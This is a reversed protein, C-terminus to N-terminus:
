RDVDLLLNERENCYEDDAHPTPSPLSNLRGYNWAQGFNGGCSTLTIADGTQPISPDETTMCNDTGPISFEFDGKNDYRWRQNENNADCEFLEVVQNNNRNTVGACLDNGARLRLLRDDNLEWLMRNDTEDCSRLVLNEGNIANFVGLCFNFQMADGRFQLLVYNSPSCSFNITYAADDLDSGDATVVVLYDRENNNDVVAKMTRRRDICATTDIYQCHWSGNPEEAFVRMYTESEKGYDECTSEFDVVLSEDEGSVRVRYVQSRGWRMDRVPDEPCGSMETYIYYDVVGAGDLLATSHIFATSTCQKVQHIETIECATRLEFRTSPTSNAVESDDKINAINSSDGKERQNDQVDVGGVDPGPVDPGPPAPKPKLGLVLGVVTSVFIIVAAFLLLRKRSHCKECEGRERAGTKPESSVAQKSSYPHTPAKAMDSDVIVVVDDNLNRPRDREYYRYVGDSILSETINRVQVNPSLHHSLVEIGCVPCTSKGMGYWQRAAQRSLTHHCPADVIIPDEM